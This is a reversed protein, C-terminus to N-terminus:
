NAKDLPTFIDRVCDRVLMYLNLYDFSIEIFGIFSLYCDSDFLNAKDQAIGVGRWSKQFFNPM